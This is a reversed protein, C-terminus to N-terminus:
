HLLREKKYEISSLSNLKEQIREMDYYKIYDHIM